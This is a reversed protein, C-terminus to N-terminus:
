GKIRDLLWQRFGRINDIYNESFDKTARKYFRQKFDPYRANINFTTVELLFNKQDDTLGLDASEAIKLLHHIAPPSIDNNKVYVAKLLKELVLHGIFLAWVYHGNNFLSEMAKFDIESSDIWYTIIEEKTM